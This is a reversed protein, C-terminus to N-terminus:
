FGWSHGCQAGSTGAGSSFCGLADIPGSSVILLSNAARANEYLYSNLPSTWQHVADGIGGAPLSRAGILSQTWFRIILALATFILRRALNHRPLSNEANMISAYAFKV